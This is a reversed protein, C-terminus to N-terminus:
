LRRCSRLNTSCGSPGLPTHALDVPCSCGHDGCVQRFKFAVGGSEGIHPNPAACEGVVDGANADAGAAGADADAAGAAVPIAEGIAVNESNSLVGVGLVCPLWGVASDDDHAPVCKPNPSGSSKLWM